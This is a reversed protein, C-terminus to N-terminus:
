KKLAKIFPSIYFRISLGLILLMFGLYVIGVGPDRVVRLGTWSHLEPDYSFQFFTYGAFKLPFNVRIDKTLVAKGDQIISVNSVVIDGFIHEISQM